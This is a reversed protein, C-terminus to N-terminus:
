PMIQLLAEFETAANSLSGIQKSLSFEDWQADPLDDMFWCLAVVQPEVNIEALAHTLWGDPYNRAPRVNTDTTFTNTSTIFVPLGRTAPHANIIALWDRYVRFGSQAGNWAPQRLDTVPELARGKGTLELAEPRGPAQVAFGDPSAFPIGAAAKEQATQSIAYVLTNMYNLWPADSSWALEGDQDTNWPRVPGVLIRASSHEQRIIQVVNDTRTMAVGHGNFVRAYWDPTVEYGTTLENSGQENYGSGIIFAYVNRLRADRALRRVYVLYEALAAENERPPISQGKQYDVRVLVRLGQENARQIRTALEDITYGPNTQAVFTLEVDWGSRQHWNRLPNAFVVGLKTPGSMPVPTPTVRASPFSLRTWEVCGTHCDHYFVLQYDRESPVTTRWIWTWSELGPNEHWADIVLPRDNLTLLVNSWPVIDSIIIQLSSPANTSEAVLSVRPWALQDISSSPAIMVYGPTHAMFLIVSCFGIFILGYVVRRTKM